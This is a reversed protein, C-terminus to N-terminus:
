RMRRKRTSLRRRQRRGRSGRKSSTRRKKRQKPASAPAHDNLQKKMMEEEDVFYHFSKEGGKVILGLRPKHRHDVSGVLRYGIRRMKEQVYWYPVKGSKNPRLSDRVPGEKDIDMSPLIFVVHDPRNLFLTSPRSPNGLMEIHDRLVQIDQVYQENIIHTEPPDPYGLTDAPDHIQQRPTTHLTWGSSPVSVNDDNM